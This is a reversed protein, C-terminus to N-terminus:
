RNLLYNAKILDVILNKKDDLKVISQKKLETIVRSVTERSVRCFTAIIAQSIKSHIEIINNEHKRIGIRILISLVKEISKNRYSNTIFDENHRIYHTLQAMLNICFTKNALIKSIIQPSLAWYECDLISTARGTRPGKDIFSAWGFIQGPYKIDLSAEFGYHDTKSIVVIGSKLIYAINENQVGEDFIVSRPSCKKLVINQVIKDVFCKEVGNFLPLETFNSFNFL